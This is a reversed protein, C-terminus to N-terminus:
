KRATCRVQEEAQHTIEILSKELAQRLTEVTQGDADEPVDLREGAVFVGRSFPAPVVFRDWSNFEKRRSCAYTVPFIPVGTAKALVIAGKHVQWRPGRPGDPTIAVDGGARLTEVMRRFGASGGRTASGRISRVGLRQVARAILEGDRHNSILVNLGRGKYALPMMLLRQHWLAYISPLNEKWRSELEDFGERSFGISLGLSKVFLSILYPAAALVLRNNLRM